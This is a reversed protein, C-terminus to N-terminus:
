FALKGANRCKLSKIDMTLQISHFHSSGNGVAKQFLLTTASLSFLYLISRYCLSSKKLYLLTRQLKCIVLCKECASIIMQPLIRVGPKVSSLFFTNGTAWSGICFCFLSVQYRPGRSGLENIARGVSIQRQIVSM